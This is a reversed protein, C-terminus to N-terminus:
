SELFTFPDTNNAEIEEYNEAALVLTDGTLSIKALMTDTATEWQTECTQLASAISFGGLASGSAVASTTGSLDSSGGSEGGTKGGEAAEMLANGASSLESATVGINPM